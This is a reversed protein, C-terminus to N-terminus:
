KCVPINYYIVKGNDNFVNGTVNMEFYKKGKIIGNIAFTYGKQKAAELTLETFSINKSWGDKIFKKTIQEVTELKM